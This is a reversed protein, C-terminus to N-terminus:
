GKLIVPMGMLPWVVMVFVGLVVLLMVSAIMGYKFFEGATFQRSDYAIANPAAGVLFVFPMGATALAVYLIVEAAVGLYPAIVLAVPLSIAIAAVNMIFNTMILVFFGIGM